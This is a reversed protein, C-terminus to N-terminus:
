SNRFFDFKILQIVASTLYDYRHVNLEPCEHKMEDFVSKTKQNWDANETSGFEGQRNMVMYAKDNRKFHGIIRTKEDSDSIRVKDAKTYVFYSIPEKGCQQVVELGINM